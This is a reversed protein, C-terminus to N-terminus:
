AQFLYLQFPTNNNANALIHWERFQNKTERGRGGIKRRGEGKEEGEGRGGWLRSLVILM